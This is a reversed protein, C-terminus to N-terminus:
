AATARSASPWASTPSTRSATARRAPHQGAEPRPAPHRAPPRLAGGAGGDGAAPGGGAPRSCCSRAMSRGPQRGRGAEHQLLAPGRARRGRLDARHQPHDLNAAAEAETRFRQVDAPSALQGALIMKLAVIRNLSVQRAKYVVGMGGRAIEELLEYDGFYRRERSADADRAPPTLGRISRPRPLRPQPLVRGARGQTLRSRRRAIDALDTTPEAELRKLIPPSATRFGSNGSDGPQHHRDDTVGTRATGAEVTEAGPAAVGRGGGADPGPARGIEDLSWGHWHQLM